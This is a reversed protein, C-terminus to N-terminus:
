GVRWGRQRMGDDARGNPGVALGSVTLELTGGKCGEPFSTVPTPLKHPDFVGIRNKAGPLNQYLGGTQRVWAPQEMGEQGAPYKYQGLIAGSKLSIFTLFLPSDGDSSATPIGDVPDYALEDVRFEGGTQIKRIIITGPQKASAEIIDDEGEGVWVHGLDDTIVGKPGSCHRL